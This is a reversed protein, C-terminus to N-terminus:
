SLLFVERIFSYLFENYILYLVEGIKVLPAFVAIKKISILHLGYRLLNILM